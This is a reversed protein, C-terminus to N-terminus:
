WDGINDSAANSVHTLQRIREEALNIEMEAAESLEQWTTLKDYENHGIASEALRARAEEFTM